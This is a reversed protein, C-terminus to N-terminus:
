RRPGDTDRDAHHPDFHELTGTVTLVRDLLPPRNDLHLTVGAAATRRHLMLLVCLGMSDIGGLAACDVRLHRLGPTATLHAVAEDLFRESDDYDLFGRVALVLTTGDASPVTTTALAERRPAPASTM